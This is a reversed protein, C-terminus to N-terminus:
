PRVAAAMKSRLFPSCWPECQSKQADTLNKYGAIRGFCARSECFCDFPAAMDWETTLYNFAIEEGQKIFRTAVLTWTDFDFRANPSCHHNLYRGAMEDPVIHTDEDIQITYRDPVSVEPGEIKLIPEGALIDFAAITAAGYAVRGLKVKRDATDTRNDVGQQVTM